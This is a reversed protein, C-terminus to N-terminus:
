YRRENRREEDKRRESAVYANAADQSRQYDNARQSERQRNNADVQACQAGNGTCVFRGDGAYIAKPDAHATITMAALVAFLIHKMTM